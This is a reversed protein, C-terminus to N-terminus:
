KKNGKFPANFKFFCIDGDEVIHEKGQQRYKGEAKVLAETGCRVFDECKMIEVCIFGHEFDTHIVGAAQPAKTGERITWCKVEDHGATFFYILDLAQYGTKIIKPLMSVETIPKSDPKIPEKSEEKPKELSSDKNEEFYNKEYECSFPIIIGVINAKVWEHIKM